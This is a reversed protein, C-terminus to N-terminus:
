KKGGGLLGGLVDTIWSGGSDSKSADDQQTPAPAPTGGSPAPTPAPASDSGGGGLIDSLWGGLGGGSSGANGSGAPASGPKFKNALWGMVIPALLPLLKGIMGSNLGGLGGLQNVVQDTNGGFVNGVIKQGDAVDVNEVDLGGSSLKGAHQQLAGELSSAGGPDQANAQMGHVLAPLAAKTAQTAEETSVGLQQAIQDMPIQSLLENLNM